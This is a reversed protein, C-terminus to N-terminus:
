RASELTYCTLDIVARGELAAVRAGFDGAAEAAARDIQVLAVHQWAPDPRYPERRGRSICAVEHGAEVLGPVLSSGIHGTGGIVVIRM